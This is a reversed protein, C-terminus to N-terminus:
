SPRPETRSTAAWARGAHCARRPPPQSSRPRMTSFARTPPCSCTAMPPVAPGPRRSSWTRPSGSHVHPTSTAVSCRWWVGCTSPRSWKLWRGRLAPWRWTGPARPTGPTTTGCPLRRTRCWPATTSGRRPRNTTSSGPSRRGYSPRPRPRPTSSSPPSRMSFAPQHTAIQVWIEPPDASRPEGLRPCRWLDAGPVALNGAVLAAGWADLYTTM